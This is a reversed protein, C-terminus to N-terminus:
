EVGPQELAGTGRDHLVGYAVDALLVAAVDDIVREAAAVQDPRSARAARHVAREEPLEVRPRALQLGDSQLMLDLVVPPPRVTMEPEEVVPERSIGPIHRLLVAPEVDADPAHRIAQLRARARNVIVPREEGRHQADPQGPAGMVVGRAVAVVQPAPHVHRAAPVGEDDAIGRAERGAVHGLADAGGYAAAELR